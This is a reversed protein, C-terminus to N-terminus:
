ALEDRGEKDPMLRCQASEVWAAKESKRETRQLLRLPVIAEQPSPSTCNNSLFFFLNGKPSVIRQSRQSRTSAIHLLKSLNRYAKHSGLCATHASWLLTLSCQSVSKLLYQRQWLLSENAGQVKGSSLKNLSGLGPVELISHSRWFNWSWLTFEADKCARERSLRSM